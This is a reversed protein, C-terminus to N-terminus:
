RPCESCDGGGCICADPGIGNAFAMSQPVAKGDMMRYTTKAHVTARVLTFSDGDKMGYEEAWSEPSTFQENWDADTVFVDM